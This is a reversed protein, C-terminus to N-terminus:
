ALAQSGDEDAETDESRIRITLQGGEVGEEATVVLLADRDGIKGEGYAFQM